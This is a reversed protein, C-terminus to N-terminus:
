GNKPRDLLAQAGASAAAHMTALPLGQITAAARVSEFEPMAGAVRGDMLKLKVTIPGYATQVSLPRRNAEHRRVDHVRVGLTTTARLLLSALRDEDRHSTIVSVLTGQRGKKM